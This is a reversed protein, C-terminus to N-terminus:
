FLICDWHETLEGVLLLHCFLFGPRYVSCWFVSNLHRREKSKWAYPHDGNQREIRPFLKIGKALTHFRQGFMDKKKVGFTGRAKESSSFVTGVRPFPHRWLTIQAPIKNKVWRWLASAKERWAALETHAHLAERVQGDLRAPSLVSIVLINCVKRYDRV